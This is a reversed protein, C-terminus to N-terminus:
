CWFTRARGGAQCFARATDYECNTGPFVPIIVRPATGHRVAPRWASNTPCDHELAPATAPRGQPVTPSVAELKAEWSRRCSPWTSAHEEGANWRILGRHYRGPCEGPPRHGALELIVSGYAPEFLDNFNLDNSLQLGVHNGVCM